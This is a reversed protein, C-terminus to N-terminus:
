LVVGIQNPSLFVTLLQIFPLEQSFGPFGRDNDRSKHLQQVGQKGTFGCVDPPKVGQAATHDYNVLDLGYGAFHQRKKGHRDVKQRLYTSGSDNETGSGLGTRFLDFVRYM